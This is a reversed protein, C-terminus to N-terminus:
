WGYQEATWGYRKGDPGIPNCLRKNQDMSSVRAFDEDSLEPLQVVVVVDDDARSLSLFSHWARSLNRVDINQRQRRENSSKPIPIVGRKVHWALIIQAGEVGYKKALELITPDERVTAYGTPTYACTLIGREDCFAKLYEQALLPHM